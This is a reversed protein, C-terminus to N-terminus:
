FPNNDPSFGPEASPLYSKAFVSNSNDVSSYGFVSLLMVSAAALVYRRGLSVGYRRQLFNTKVSNM